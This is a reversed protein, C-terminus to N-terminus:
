VIPATVPGGPTPTTVQVMKTWSDLVGAINEAALEPTDVSLNQAFTSHLLAGLGAPAVTVVGAGFVAPPTLWFSIFATEMQASPDTLAAFATSLIGALALAQPDLPTPSVGFSSRADEAYDKYADAWRSAAGPYTAVGTQFLNTLADRLKIANLPM